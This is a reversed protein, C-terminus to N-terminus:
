APVATDERRQEEADERGQEEAAEPAGDPPRPGAQDMGGVALDADAFEDGNFSGEGNFPNDELHGGDGFGGIGGGTIQAFEGTEGSAFDPSAVDLDQRSAEGQGEREEASQQRSTRNYRSTGFAMEHAVADATIELQYRPNNNRDVWTNMRFTGHITVIDGKRLSFTVNEALKRWCTVDYYSPENDRWEGSARDLFRDSVGVRITCVPTGSRSSRLDPEKTVFGTLKIYTKKV